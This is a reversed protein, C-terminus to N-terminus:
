PEPAPNAPNVVKRSVVAVGDILVQVNELDVGREDDEGPEQPGGVDLVPHKGRGYGEVVFPQLVGFVVGPQQGMQAVGLGDSGVGCRREIDEMFQFFSGLALVDRRVVQRQHVQAQPVHVAREVVEFLGEFLPAPVQHEDIDIRHILAQSPFLPERPDDLLHPKWLRATVPPLGKGGVVARKKM